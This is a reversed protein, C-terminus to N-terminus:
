FADAFWQQQANRDHVRRRRGASVESYGEGAGRERQLAALIAHDIWLGVGEGSGDHSRAQRAGLDLRPAHPFRDEKSPKPRHAPREAEVAV